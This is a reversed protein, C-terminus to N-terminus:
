VEPIGAIRAHKVEAGNHVFIRRRDDFGPGRLAIDYKDINLVVQPFRECVNGIAQVPRLM